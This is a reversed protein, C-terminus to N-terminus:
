HVFLIDKIIAEKECNEVKIKLVTESIESIKGKIIYIKCTEPKTNSESFLVDGEKIIYSIVSTDLKKEKLKELTNESFLRDKNRINKLTRATPGYDFTYDIGKEKIFFYVLIVGLGVGVFFYIFRKTLSM